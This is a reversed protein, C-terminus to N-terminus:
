NEEVSCAENFEAICQECLLVHFDAKAPHHREKLWDHLGEHDSVCLGEVIDNTLFPKGCTLCYNLEPQILYNGDNENSYALEVVKGNSMLTNLLEVTEKM